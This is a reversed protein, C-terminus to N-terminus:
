SIKCLKRMTQLIFDVPIGDHNASDSAPAEKSAKKSM